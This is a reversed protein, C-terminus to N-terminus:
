PPLHWKKSSRQRSVLNYYPDLKFFDNIHLHQWFSAGSERTCLSSSFLNHVMINWFIHPSYFLSQLLLLPLNTLPCLSFLSVTAYKTYYSLRDIPDVKFRLKAAILSIYQSKNISFLITMLFLLESHSSYISNPSSEILKFHKSFM